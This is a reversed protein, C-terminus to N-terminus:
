EAITSVQFSKSAEGIISMLPTGALHDSFSIGKAGLTNILELAVSISAKESACIFPGPSNYDGTAYYNTCGCWNMCYSNLECRQCLDNSINHADHSCKIQLPTITNINGLCHSLGDDNGILRECPYINGSPGFAFEGKGMRCKELAGYGSRMIVAIKGDILSIYLPTEAMYYDLYKKGIRQFLDPLMDAHEQTWPASINPSLYIVRIGLGYFYDVVDPLYELTSPTYVANVPLFPYYQLAQRFNKEVIASTGTGDTFVRSRDQIHSPGDCSIGFSVGLRILEDAIANSFITGNSVIYLEIKRSNYAKHNRIRQIVKKIFEFELMPEGGFFGIELKEDKPTDNFMYEIINDATEMSMVADNKFIYCYICGLNCQQTVAITFKM